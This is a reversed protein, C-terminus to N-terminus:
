KAIEGDICYITYSGTAGDWNSSKNIANWEDVTGQFTISKLNSCNYFASNSIREVSNPITINKLSTCDRFVGISLDLVSDPITISKNYM